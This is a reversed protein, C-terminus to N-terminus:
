PLFMASLSTFHTKCCLPNNNMEQGYFILSHYTFCIKFSEVAMFLHQCLILHMQRKMTRPM